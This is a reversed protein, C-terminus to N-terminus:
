KKERKFKKREKKKSLSIKSLILRTRNFDIILTLM